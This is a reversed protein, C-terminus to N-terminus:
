MDEDRLRKFGPLTFDASLDVCGCTGRDFDDCSPVMSLPQFKSLGCLTSIMDNVPRDEPVWRRHGGALASCGGWALPSLFVPEIQRLIRSM